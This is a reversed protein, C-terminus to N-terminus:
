EITLVKLFGTVALIDMVDNNIHRFITEGGRENMIKQTKLIVRLGASSVYELDQCEFVLKKIDKLSKDIVQELDYSTTSDLSGKITIVLEADKQTKIIEM